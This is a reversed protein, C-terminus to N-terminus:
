DPYVRYGGNDFLNLIFRLPPVLFAESSYPPRVQGALRGLPGVPPDPSVFSADTFSGFLAEVGARGGRDAFEWRPGDMFLAKGFERRLPLAPRQATQHCAATRLYGFHELAM